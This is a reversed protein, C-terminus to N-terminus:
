GTTSFIRVVENMFKRIPLHQPCKEECKGCAICNSAHNESSVNDWYRIKSEESESSLHYENYQALITPIDVGQSCPMCYQCGTCGVFGLRNYANKVEEILALEDDSLSGPRSRDAYLLNEEVHRMESM